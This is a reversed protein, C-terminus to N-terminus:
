VRLWMTVARGEGRETSLLEYKNGACFDQIGIEFIPDDGTVKLVQGRSMGQITRSIHVLPIPCCHGVTSIEKDHSM